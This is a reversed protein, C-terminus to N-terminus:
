VLQGKLDPANTDTKSYLRVTLDNNSKSDPFGSELGLQFEDPIAKSSSIALPGYRGRVVVDGTVNAASAIVQLLHSDKIVFAPNSSDYVTDGIVVSTGEYFNNGAIDVIVSNPGAAKVNLSTIEPGLGSHFDKSNPIVIDPINKDTREERPCSAM